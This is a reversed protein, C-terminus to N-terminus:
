TAGGIGDEVCESWHHFRSQPLSFFELHDVGSTAAMKEQV